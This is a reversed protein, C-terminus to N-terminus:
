GIPLSALRDITSDAAEIHAQAGRLDTQFCRVDFPVLRTPRVDLRIAQSDTDEVVLQEVTAADGHRRRRPPRRHGPEYVVADQGPPLRAPLLATGRPLVDELCLEALQVTNALANPLDRFREFVEEPTALHQGGHGAPPPAVSGPRDQKELAM